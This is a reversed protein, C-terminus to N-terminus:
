AKRERSWFLFEEDYVVPFVLAWPVVKKAILPCQFGFDLMTASNGCAFTHYPFPLFPSVSSDIHQPFLLFQLHSTTLFLSIGGSAKATVSPWHWEIYIDFASSSMLDITSWLTAGLIGLIWVRHLIKRKFTSLVQTHGGPWYILVFHATCM